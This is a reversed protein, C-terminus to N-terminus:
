DFSTGVAPNVVNGDRKTIFVRMSLELASKRTPNLEHEAPAKRIRVRNFPPTIIETIQLFFIIIIMYCLLYGHCQRSRFRRLYMCIVNVRNSGSGIVVIDM